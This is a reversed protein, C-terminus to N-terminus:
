LEFLKLQMTSNRIRDEAYKCQETSLESGIYFMQEEVAGIATTGTGMFSDYVIAGKKAYLRLLKRVLEVSFTAKNLECSGDNNAAEIFNFYNNYIYQGKKSMSHIEKNANFTEFESKRCFVFVFECIRTLKNPSVNNPIANKKKWSICDAVIFNTEHQIHSIVNWILWTNESSYSINFLVVGNPKLIKDYGNFVKEIFLIYEGDSLGDSYTDYRFSYPDSKSSPRSTNYPPSTLVIDVSQKLEDENMTVLCDENYIVNTKM